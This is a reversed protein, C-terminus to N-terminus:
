CPPECLNCHCHLTRPLDMGTADQMGLSKGILGRRQVRATRAAAVMIVATRQPAVRQTRAQFAVSRVREHRTEQKAPHGLQPPMTAASPSGPRDCLCTRCSGRGRAQGWGAEVPNLSLLPHVISPYSTLALPIPLTPASAWPSSKTKAGDPTCCRHLVRRGSARTSYGRSTHKAAGPKSQVDLHDPLAPGPLQSPRAFAPAM